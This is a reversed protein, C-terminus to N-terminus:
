RMQEQPSYVAAGLPPLTFDGSYPQGMVSDSRAQVGDPRGMGSGGFERNDSNFREVWHGGVPLGISYNEKPTPTLNMIVLVRRLSDTTQRVFILISSEYDSCDVWYFGAPDFECQHLAPEDLYLRNLAAVMKQAGSHYPGMALLAWDIERNESWESSQGLEGGM